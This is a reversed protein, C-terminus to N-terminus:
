SSMVAEMSAVLRAAHEGLYFHGGDYTTLEFDGTTHDRWARVEALTVKPDHLGIHAHIPASVIAGDEGRYTEAAKYDARLAPLIARLMEEDDLVRADSGDLRRMEALVGADDLLHVTENRVQSPARRGSVFLAAPGTGRAELLRAVEFAVSAGMSHGFLYLPRDLWSVLEAAVREALQPVSELCREHRRDQRGPYQVALVEHAPAVMRSVPHFYTASGGAHALCVLRAAPDARPHFRRLWSGATRQGDTM